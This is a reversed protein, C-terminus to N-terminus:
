IDIAYSIRWLFDPTKRKYALLLRKEFRKNKHNINKFISM